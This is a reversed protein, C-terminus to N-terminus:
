NDKNDNKEPKDSKESVGKITVFTQADGRRVLMTVPSAKDIRTLVENFQTVSKLEVPGNKTIM